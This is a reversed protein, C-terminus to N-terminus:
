FCRLMHCYNDGKGDGLGKIFMLMAMSEQSFYCNRKPCLVADQLQMNMSYNKSDASRKIIGEQVVDKTCVKSEYLM